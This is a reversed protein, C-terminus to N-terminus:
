VAKGVARIRSDHEHRQFRELLALVATEAAAGDGHLEVALKRRDLLREDGHERRRWHRAKAGDAAELQLDLIAGAEAVARQVVGGLGEDGLCLSRGFRRPAEGAILARR